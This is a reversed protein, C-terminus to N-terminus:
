ATVRLPRLAARTAPAAGDPREDLAEVLAACTTARTWTSCWRPRASWASREVGAAECPRETASSAARASARPSRTRRRRAAPRQHRHRPPRARDHGLAGRRGRPLLAAVERPTSCRRTAPCSCRGARVRRGARAPDRDAGGASQGASPTRAPGRRGASRRRARRRPDATVVAVAGLGAVRGLAALVDPWWRRPSRGAAAPAPLAPVLRQKAAGFTKVPLIALTKMPGALALIAMPACGASGPKRVAMARRRAVPARSSSVSAAVRRRDAPTDMLTDIALSPLGTVEEDAM